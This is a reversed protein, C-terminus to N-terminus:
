SSHDFEYLSSLSLSLTMFVWVFSVSFPTDVSFSPASNLGVFSIDNRKLMEFDVNGNAGSIDVGKLKLSM